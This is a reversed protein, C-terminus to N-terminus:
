ASWTCWPNWVILSMAINQIIVSVSAIIMNTILSYTELSLVATEKRVISVHTRLRLAVATVYQTM